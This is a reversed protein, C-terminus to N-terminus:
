PWRFMSVPIGHDDLWPLDLDLGCEIAKFLESTDRMGLGDVVAPLNEAYIAYGWDSSGNSDEFVLAGSDVNVRWEGSGRGSVDSSPLIYHGRGSLATEALSYKKALREQRDPELLALRDPDTNDALDAYKVKLALPNARVRAYYNLSHEGDRRTIADVAAAVVEDFEARLDDLTMATDEVLDHLWAVCEAAEDGAVREAVRAPHGIYPQGGKDTVGRHADTAIAKARDVSNM